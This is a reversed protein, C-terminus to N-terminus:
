RRRRQGSALARCPDNSAALCTRGRQPASRAPCVGAKCDGPGRRSEGLSVVAVERAPGALQEVQEAAVAALDPAAHMALEVLANVSQEDSEGLWGLARIANLRVKSSESDLYRSALDAVPVPARHEDTTATWAAAQVRYVEACRRLREAAAPDLNDSAAIASCLMVEAANLEWVVYVPSEATPDAASAHAAATSGLLADVDSASLLTRPGNRSVDVAARELERRAGLLRAQDTPGNLQVDIAKRVAGILFEHTLEIFESGHRWEARVITAKKLEELLEARRTPDRLRRKVLLTADVINRTKASTILLDLMELIDLQDISPKKALYEQFFDILIGDVKGLTEYTEFDIVGPTRRTAIERLRQRRNARERGPEDQALATEPELDPAGSCTRWLRDCVIQLHAPEVYREEQTLRSRIHDFCAPEFTWGFESAPTQIAETAEDVSLLPLHYTTDDARETAPRVRDLQAIFEDRLSIVLRLSPTTLGEPGDQTSRSLRILDDLEDFFRERVSWDLPNKREQGPGPAVYRTFLEEFQDLCLVVRYGPQDRAVRRWWADFFASLSETAQSVEDRINAHARASRESKLETALAEASIDAASRLAEGCVTTLHNDFRAVDISGRLLRCFMPQTDVDDVGKPTPMRMVVPAGLTRLVESGHHVDHGRRVEDYRELLEGVLLQEGPAALASHARDIAIAEARPPPLLQRLMDFRVSAMPDDRPRVRAAMWGRVELGPLIRANILSTKGAASPAHLIMTRSSLIKSLIRETADTRGHFLHADETEYNLLGKYPGALTAPPAETPITTM